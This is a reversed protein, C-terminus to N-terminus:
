PIELDLLPAHQQCGFVDTDEFAGSSHRRPVTIKIAWAPPYFVIRVENDPYKILGGIRAPTFVGSDRAQRFQVETAFMVDFTVFFPGANKSRLVKTMDRLKAM